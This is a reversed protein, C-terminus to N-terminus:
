QLTVGTCTVRTHEETYTHIYTYEVSINVTWFRTDVPERVNLVILILMKSCM